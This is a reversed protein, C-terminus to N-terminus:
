GFEHIDYGVISDLKFLELLPNSDILVEKEWTLAKGWFWFDCLPFTLNSKKGEIDEFRKKYTAQDRLFLFYSVIGGLAQDKGQGLERIGKRERLSELM